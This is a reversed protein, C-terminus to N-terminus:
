AIGRAALKEKLRCSEPSTSVPLIAVKGGRNVSLHKGMNDGVGEYLWDFSVQYEQAFLIIARYGGRFPLGSELRRYRRVSVECKQAAQKETHGLAVRAVRMRTAFAKYFYDRDPENM